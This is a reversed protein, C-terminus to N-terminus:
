IAESISVGFIPFNVTRDLTTEAAKNIIENCKPCYHNYKGRSFFERECKKYSDEDPNYVMYTCVKKKSKVYTYKRKYKKTKESNGM